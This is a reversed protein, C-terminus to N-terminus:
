YPIGDSLPLCREYLHRWGYYCLFYLFLYLQRQSIFTAVFSQDHYVYVSTM